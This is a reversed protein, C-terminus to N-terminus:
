IESEREGKYMHKFWHDFYIKNRSSLICMACRGASIYYDNTCQSFCNDFDTVNAPMRLKKVYKM